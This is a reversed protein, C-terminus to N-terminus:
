IAQDFGCSTEENIQNVYGHITWGPGYVCPFDATAERKVLTKEGSPLCNLRSISVMKLQHRNAFQLLETTRMMDGDDAMIEVVYVM